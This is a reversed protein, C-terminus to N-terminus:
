LQPLMYLRLMSRRPSIPSILSIPFILSFIETGQERNGTGQERVFSLPTSLYIVYEDEAL